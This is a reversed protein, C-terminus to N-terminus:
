PKLESIEFYREKVEAITIKEDEHFHVRLVEGKEVVQIFKVDPTDGVHGFTLYGSFREKMFDSVVEMM